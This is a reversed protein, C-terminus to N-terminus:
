SQYKEQLKALLEREKAEKNAKRKVAAAKARERNREAQAKEEATFPRWGEVRAIDYGFHVVAEKLQHDLLALETVIGGISGPYVWFHVLKHDKM